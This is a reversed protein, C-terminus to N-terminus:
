IKAQADRTHPYAAYMIALADAGAQASTSTPRDVLIDEIFCNMQAAFHAPSPKEVLPIQRIGEPGFHFLLNAYHFLRLSGTTGYIHISGPSKTWGGARVFGSFDWGDGQSFQGEVPLDTAYTCENYLLHGIAGNAFEITLHETKMAGGSVNGEGSARQATTDMMWAFADILHIGHDVLGMAFGGPYGIPYHHPSMSVSRETGQGGISQERLLLVDGIEGSLIAPRAAMVAPLFRYSSGYFLRTGREEAKAIMRNASDVTLALPKECLVHVGHDACLAAIKEHSSAPTLVCAIDIRESTLMDSVDTYCKIDSSSRVADLLSPNSDVVAVVRGRELQRYAEFHLRGVAGLGILGIRLIRSNKM